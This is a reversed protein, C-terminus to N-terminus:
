AWRQFYGAGARRPPFGVASSNPTRNVAPNFSAAIASFGGEAVQNLLM